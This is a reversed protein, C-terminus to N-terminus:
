LTWVNALKAYLADASNIRIRNNAGNGICRARTEGEARLAAGSPLGAYNYAMCRQEKRWCFTRRRGARAYAASRRRCRHTRAHFFCPPPLCATAPAPAAGACRRLRAHLGACSHSHSSILGWSGVFVNLFRRRSTGLHRTRENQCWQVCASVFVMREPQGASFRGTCIAPRQATTNIAPLSRFFAM